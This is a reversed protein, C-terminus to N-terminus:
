SPKESSKLGRGFRDVLEMGRKFSAYPHNLERGTEYQFPLGCKRCRYRLRYPGVNEVFRVATSRCVPCNLSGSYAAKSIDRRFIGM